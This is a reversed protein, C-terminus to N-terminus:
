AFNPTPNSITNKLLAADLFIASKWPPHDAGKGFLPTQFVYILETKKEFMEKRRKGKRKAKVV